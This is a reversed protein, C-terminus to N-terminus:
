KDALFSVIGPIAPISIVVGLMMIAGTIWARWRELSGVRNNIQSKVEKVDEKIEDIDEKLFEYAEQVEM